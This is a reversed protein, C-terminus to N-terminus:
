GATMADLQARCRAKIPEIMSRDTHIYVRGGVVADPVMEGVADPSTGERLRRSM